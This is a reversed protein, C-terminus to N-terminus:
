ATLMAVSSGGNDAASRIGTISNVYGSVPTGCSHCAVVIPPKTARNDPVYIYMSVYSPVGNAGWTSRSVMQVSAAQLPVATLLCCGFSAIALVRKPFQSM